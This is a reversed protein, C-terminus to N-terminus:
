TNRGRQASGEELFGNDNNHKSSQYKIKKKNVYQQVGNTFPQYKNYKIYYLIKTNKTYVKQRNHAIYIYLNFYFHFM